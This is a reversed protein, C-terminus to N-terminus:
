LHKRDVEQIDHSWGLGDVHQARRSFGPVSAEARQNM